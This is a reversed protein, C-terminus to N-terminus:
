QEHHTEVKLMGIRLLLLVDFMGTGIGNV